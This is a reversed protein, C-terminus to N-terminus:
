KSDAAESAEVEETSEGAAAAIAEDHAAAGAADDATETAKEGELEQEEAIIDNAEEKAEGLDAVKASIEDLTFRRYIKAVHDVMQEPPKEDQEICLREVERLLDTEGREKLLEMAAEFAIFRGLQSMDIGYCDPYMIPPASSVIVIKRPNLRSLITIISERLTTGRVISDDLVM